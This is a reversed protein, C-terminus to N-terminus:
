NSNIKELGVNGYLPPNGTFIIFNLSCPGVSAIRRSFSGCANQM